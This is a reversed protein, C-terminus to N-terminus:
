IFFLKRPIETADVDIEHNMLENSIVRLAYYSEFSSLSSYNGEIKM